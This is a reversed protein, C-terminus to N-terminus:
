PLHPFTHYFKPTRSLGITFCLINFMGEDVKTTSGDTPDVDAEDDSFVTVEFMDNDSSHNSKVECSGEAITFVSKLDVDNSNYSTELESFNTSKKEEEEETAIDESSSTEGVILSKEGILVNDLSKFSVPSSSDSISYCFSMTALSLQELSLDDDFNIDTTTNTTTPTLSAESQDCDCSSHGGSPSLSPSSISPSSMTLRFHFHTVIHTTLESFVQFLNWSLIVFSLADYIAQCYLFLPWFSHRRPCFNLSSDAIPVKSFRFGALEIQIFIQKGAFLM